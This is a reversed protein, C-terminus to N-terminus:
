CPMARHASRTQFNLGSMARSALPSPRALVARGWTGARAEILLAKTSLLKALSTPKATIFKLPILM